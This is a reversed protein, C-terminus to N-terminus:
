LFRYYGFLTVTKWNINPNRIGEESLGVPENFYVSKEM